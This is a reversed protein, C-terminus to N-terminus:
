NYGNLTNIYFYPMTLTATATAPGPATTDQGENQLTYRMPQSPVGAGTITAVKNGDIYFTLIGPEWDLLFTHYKGDNFSYGTNSTGGNGNFGNAGDGNPSYNLSVARIPSTLDPDVEPFDVENSWQNSAPWLLFAIKYAAGGSTTAKLALGVQGYLFSDYTTGGNTAPIPVAAYNTGNVNHDYFILSGNSVSLVKTSSYVATGFTTTDGDYGPNFIGSYASCGAPFSGVPCDTNFDETFNRTFGSPVVTPISPVSSNFQVASGGSATADTILSAGNALTGSEAETSVAPTAAHGSAIMLYTGVSAIVAIGLVKGALPMASLASKAHLRLM